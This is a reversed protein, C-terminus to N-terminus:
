PKTPAFASSRHPSAIAARSPANFRREMTRVNGGAGCRAVMPRCSASPAARMGVGLTNDAM